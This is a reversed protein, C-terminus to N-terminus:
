CDGLASRLTRTYVRAGEANPHVRDTALVNEARSAARQWDVLTANDNDAAVRRVASSAPRQWSRGPVHPSVLLVQKDRLQRRVLRQLDKRDIVGNTGTGIVVVKGLEGRAAARRVARAVDGYQWGVEATADLRPMAKVLAPAAAILVSDGFASVRVTKGVTRCTAGLASAAAKPAQEVVPDAAHALVKQGRLLSAQLASRDPATGVAFAAGAVVVCATGLTVVWRHRPHRREVVLWGVPAVWRRLTLVIGDERMPTEVYRYSLEAAAGALLVAVMGAAVAHEPAALRTAFVILPWHWLYLGYSRSGLWRMPPISLLTALPTPNAAALVLALAAVSAVLLGGRYPWASSWTVSAAYWAIVVLGAVGIWTIVARKAPSTASGDTRLLHPLRTLALAAGILLGFVHTDTGVYSRTPDAPDYLVSMLVVSALALAVVVVALRRRALLLLGVALLLPWLLYFQEEIALSWLHNLVSPEGQEAYAWGGAVQVWNATWTLGGLVQARLGAGTDRGVALTLAAVVVIMLTAAPVLRRARRTWFAPLDFRMQSSADELLVATILFGSLVFFVDVGVYGGPMESPAVHFAVVLIVALARVGDLGPATVRRPSM